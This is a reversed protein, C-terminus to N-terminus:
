QVNKIIKNLKNINVSSNPSMINLRKNYKGPRVTPNSKKAFKYVIVDSVDITSCDVRAKTSIV